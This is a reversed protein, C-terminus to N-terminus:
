QLDRQINYTAIRARKLSLERIFECWLKRHKPEAEMAGGETAEEEAIVAIVDSHYWRKIMAEAEEKKFIQLDKKKKMLEKRKMATEAKM